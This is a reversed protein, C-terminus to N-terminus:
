KKENLNEKLLKRVNEMLKINEKELDDKVKYAKGISIVATKKFPKMPGKIAFPVIYADSKNALSVAGYKFMMLDDDTKNITGEPFIAIIQDHVLLRTAKHLSNKNNKNKRDVPITGVSEFFAKKFKGEHLEQKVIFFVDRRKIAYGLLIFDLKSTHNGAFVFGKDKPLNEIGYVQPRYILTVLPRLIFRICRYTIPKM